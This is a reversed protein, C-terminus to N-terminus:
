LLFLKLLFVCLFFFLQKTKRFLMCFSFDGVCYYVFGVSRCYRWFPVGNPIKACVSLEALMYSKWFLSCHDRVFRLFLLSCTTYFFVPFLSSPFPPSPRLVNNPWCDRPGNGSEAGHADGSRGLQSAQITRSFLLLSILYM